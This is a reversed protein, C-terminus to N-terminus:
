PRCARPALRRSRRRVSRGSGEARPAKVASPAVWMILQRADSPFQMVMLAMRRTLSPASSAAARPRALGASACVGTFNESSQFYSPVCAGEQQREVAAVELGFAEVDGDVGGAARDLRDVADRRAGVVHGEGVDVRQDLEAVLVRL